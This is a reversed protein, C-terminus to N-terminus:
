RLNQRFSTLNLGCSFTAVVGQFGIVGLALVHLILSLAVAQEDGIGYLGLALICAAQVVGVYGPLSPLVSGVGLFVGVTIASSFPLPWGFGGVLFWIMLYDMMFAGTALGMVRFLLWPNRLGYIGELAKDYLSLILERIREPLPFQHIWRHVVPSWQKGRILFLAIFCAGLWFVGLFIILARGEIVQPGHISLILGIFLTLMLMDSIRDAVASSIVQGIPVKSFRNVMVARVIEGSRALFILNSLYGIANARWFDKFPVSASTTILKWRWSRLVLALSTCVAAWAAWSFDFSKLTILLTGIDLYLLICIALGLSILSGFLLSWRTKNM